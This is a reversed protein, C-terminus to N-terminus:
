SESMVSRLDCAVSCGDSFGLDVAPRFLFFDAEETAAAPSPPPLRINTTTSSSISRNSSRPGSSTYRSKISGCVGPSIISPNRLGRVGRGEDWQGQSADLMTICVHLAKVQGM